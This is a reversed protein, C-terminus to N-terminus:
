SSITPLAFNFISFGFLNGVLSAIAWAAFVIVLGILAATLQSRAAETQGKDGGSLIWRIGGVVLMLFFIIAAIILAVQILGGIIGGATISSVASTVGGPQLNISNSGNVQTLLNRM